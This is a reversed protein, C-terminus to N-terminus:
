NRQGPGAKGAAMGSHQKPLPEDRAARWDWALPVSLLVSNLTLQTAMSPQNREILWHGIPVQLLWSCIWVSLAVVLRTQVSPLAALAFDVIRALALSASGTVVTTPSSLPAAYAALVLQVPWHVQLSWIAQSIASLALLVSFWEIPVCTAHLCWNAASAHHARYLALEGRYARRAAAMMSPLPADFSEIPKSVALAERSAAGHGSRRTRM